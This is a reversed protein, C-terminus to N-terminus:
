RRKNRSSNNKKHNKKSGGNKKPKFITNAYVLVAPVAVTQLINGGAQEAVETPVEEFDVDVPTLDEEDAPLSEDVEEPSKYFNVSPTEDRGGTKRSRRRRGGSIPHVLLLNGQGPVTTQQGPGGYVSTGFDSFNLCNGGSVRKTRRRKNKDGRKNNRSKRSDRSSVTTTM